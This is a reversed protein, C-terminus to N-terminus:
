NKPANLPEVAADGGPLRGVCVWARDRWWIIEETLLMNAASQEVIVNERVIGVKETAPVATM